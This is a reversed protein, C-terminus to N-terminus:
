ESESAAWGPQPVNSQLLSQAMGMAVWYPLGPSKLDVLYSEGNEDICEAVVVYNVVIASDSAEAVAERLKADNM